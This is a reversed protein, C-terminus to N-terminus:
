KQKRKMQSKQKITPKSQGKRLLLIAGVFGLVVIVAVIAYTSWPTSDTPNTPNSDSPETSSPPTDTPTTPTPTSPPPPTGQLIPEETQVLLLFSSIKLNAPVETQNMDWAGFRFSLTGSSALSATLPENGTHGVAVVAGSTNYFTGIVRINKATQTGTNQITGSVWYVGEGDTAGTNDKITLDPYQYNSTAEAQEVTFDVRDVGFSVWSLDGSASSGPFFEMYFPAKQHPVLYQAFAQIFSSAQATGDMTYVTGGLGVLNITNSGVNQVEGVVVFYGLSDIYWSYSLVKINEPQSYGHPVLTLSLSLVTLIMFVFVTNKRM